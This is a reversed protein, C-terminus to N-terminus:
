GGNLLQAAVCEQVADAHGNAVAECQHRAERGISWGVALSVFFGGLVVGVILIGTLRAM